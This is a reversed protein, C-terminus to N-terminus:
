YWTKGNPKERGLLIVRAYGLRTIEQAAKLVRSDHSEPLIICNSARIARATIKEIVSGGMEKGKFVNRPVIVAKTRCSEAATSSM